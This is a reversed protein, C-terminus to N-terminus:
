QTAIELFLQHSVFAQCRITLDPRSENARLFEFRMLIDLVQCLVGPCVNGDTRKATITNKKAQNGEFTRFGLKSQSFIVLILDKLAFSISIERFLYAYQEIKLVRSAHPFCIRSLNESPIRWCSIERQRKLFQETFM